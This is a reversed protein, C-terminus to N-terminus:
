DLDQHGSNQDEQEDKEKIMDDIALKVMETVRGMLDAVGISIVAMAYNDDGLKIGYEKLREGLYQALQEGNTIADRARNEDLGFVTMVTTINEKM